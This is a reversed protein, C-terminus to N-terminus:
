GVAALLQNLRAAMEAPQKAPLVMAMVYKLVGAHDGLPLLLREWVRGNCQSEARHLTYIPRGREICREYTGRHYQAVLGKFNSVCLGTMDFGAIEALLSGFLRYVFDGDALRELMVLHGLGFRLEIPDIDSKRLVPESGRKSQWYEWLAAIPRNNLFGASIDDSEFFEVRDLLHKFGTM